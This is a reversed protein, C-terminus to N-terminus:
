KQNNFSKCYLTKKHNWFSSKCICKNCNPCIIKEKAKVSIKDKNEQYYQYQKLDIEKKNELYRKKDYEKKSLYTKNCRLVNLSPNLKIRYEEEIDRLEDINDVDVVELQILKIHKVKLERLKKYLSLNYNDCKPNKLANNHNTQRKAIGSKTSGIYNEDGIEIKYIYGKM